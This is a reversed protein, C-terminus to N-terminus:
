TIKIESKNNAVYLERREIYILHQGIEIKNYFQSNDKGCHVVKSKSDMTEIIIDAGKKGKKIGVVEGKVIREIQSTDM